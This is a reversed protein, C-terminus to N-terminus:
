GGSRAYMDLSQRVVRGHAASPQTTGTKRLIQGLLAVAQGLLQDTSDNANRMGAEVGGSISNVIQDNNAVASKGGIKGVMEPGAERAIFMEGVSLLGGSAMMKPVTVNFKGGFLSGTFGITMGNLSNFATKVGAVANEASEQMKGMGDEFASTDPAEPGTKLEEKYQEIMKYMADFEEFSIGKAVYEESVSALIQDLDLGTQKTMADLISKYQENGFQDLAAAFVYAPNSDSDYNEKVWQRIKADAASFQSPDLGLLKIVDVMQEDTLSESLSAILSDRLEDSFYEWGTIDLIEFAKIPIGTAKSAVTQLAHKMDGGELADSFVNKIGSINVDKETMKETFVEDLWMKIIGRGEAGSDKVAAEVSRDMSEMVEKAKATAEDAQAQYMEYLETNGEDLAANALGQYHAALVNWGTYMETYIEEYGKRIEAEYETYYNLVSTISEPSLDKLTMTKVRMSAAAESTVQAKTVAETIRQMKNMITMVVEKDWDSKLEGTTEDILAHALENGLGTMIGSVQEWGQIGSALYRQSVDQGTADLIPVVSMSVRLLTQQSEAYDKVNNILQDVDNEMQTLSSANDVGLKLAKIDGLVIRASSVLQNRQKRSITVKTTVLELTVRADAKFMKDQVFATVEKEALVEGGYWVINSKDTTLAIGIAAVAIIGAAIAVGVVGGAAAATAATVGAGFKILAAATVVGGMAGVGLASCITENTIEKADVAGQVVKIGLLVTAFIGGGILGIGYDGKAKGLALAMGLAATATSIVTEEDIGGAMDKSPKKLLVQIGLTLALFFGGAIMANTVADGPIIGASTMSGAGFAAAVAGGATRLLNETSLSEEPRMLSGLIVQMGLTLSLVFGAAGLAATAEGPFLGAKGLFKFGLASAVFIGAKRAISELTIKNKRVDGTLTEILLYVTATMMAAALGTMAAMPLEMGLGKAVFGVGGAMTLASLAKAAISEATIEGTQIDGIVAKIGVEAGFVLGTVGLGILTSSGLGLGVFAKAIFTGAVGLKLASLIALSLNRKDLASVDTAGLAAVLDATASVTLIIPITAMAAGSNHTLHYMLTAALVSGVATVLINKLLWGTDGTQLFQKNYKLTIDFVLAALIGTTAWGLLTGITGALLSSIQWGAIAVGVLKAVDLITDMNDKVWQVADRIKKDFTDVEEFMQTYDYADKLGSNGGNGGSESQIINLEDWSALLEKIAGTAEKAKKKSEEFAESSVDKAKSWTAQGNMLALFQNVVNLLNIFWSVVRQILPILMQIAPALAAGISNKMKLTADNMSTVAKYYDGGIAKSYAKYNDLGEKISKTIERIVYRIARMKMIRFFQGILTGLGSKVNKNTSALEKLRDSFKKVEKSAEDAKGGVDKVANGTAEMSEKAETASEAAQTVGNIKNELNQIQMAYSAIRSDDWGSQIGMALNARMAEVKMRLLEVKETADVYQTAIDRASDAVSKNADREAQAANKIKDNLDQIQSVTTSIQAPDYKDNTLGVSLRDSLGEAKMRMLDLKSSTNVLDAAAQRAHASIDNVSQATSAANSQMKSMTTEAQGGNVTIKVSQIGRMNQLASAARELSSIAAEPIGNGLAGVIKSIGTAVRDLSMGKGVSNRVRVLANALKSLAQEASTANAVINLKLTTDPM